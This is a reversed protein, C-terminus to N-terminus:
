ALLLLTAADNATTEAAGKPLQVEGDAYPTRDPALAALRMQTSEAMRNFAIFLEGFEDARKQSIRRDSDGDGFAVLSERLLRISKAMLGGFFYSLGGVAIVAVLGLLALLALTARLVRQMGSQSVGLHITGIPTNQFLIPTDFLFVSRGDPLAVSSIWMGAANATTTQGPLPAFPRGTLGEETSAQVIGRHDTVALYEFSGRAKADQVFLKLPLWNQGLVPLAAEVAVFKALSAGSDLFQAQLVRREAGYVITMCAAFTLALAASARLALKVRLPLFRNQTESKERDQLAQLERQLAESVQKGTQFRQEPRKNLLKMIARDLGEPIDPAISSPPPPTTQLVQLMLLALNDNEFARRGTLLEYLIAGLSFLDSRGDLPRAAVQEPSMYRPTGLLAGVHTQQMEDITPFRAIGFDTLKVTDGGEVLLINAPKIDRHVIGRRHAFDLANALQIGISLIKKLPLREGGALVRALSDEDLFEMAIYPTGSAQGVDYITVINPHSIAGASRAERQFRTSFNSDASYEQKLIKIALTRDIAPDYAKYVFATAGEGVLSQVKYRGITQRKQTM